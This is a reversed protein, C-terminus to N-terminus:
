YHLCHLIQAWHLRGGVRRCPLSCFTIVPAGSSMTATSMRELSGWVGSPIFYIQNQCVIESFPNTYEGEWISFSGGAHPRRVVSKKAWKPRGRWSCESRPFFKSDLNNWSSHINTPVVFDWVVAKWGCVSPCDSLNMLDTIWISLATASSFGVVHGLPQWRDHCSIPHGYV